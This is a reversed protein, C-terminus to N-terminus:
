NKNDYIGVYNFENMWEFLLTKSLLKKSLRKSIKYYNKKPIDSIKLSVLLSPLNNFIKFKNIKYNTRFHTLSLPLLNFSLENYNCEFIKLSIPLNNITKIKTNSINLIELNSFMFNLKNFQGNCSIDLNKLTDTLYNIHSINRNSHINLIRLNKLERLDLIHTKEVNYGTYCNPEPKEQDSLDLEELSPPLNKINMSIINNHSLCLKKLNKFKRLDPVDILCKQSLDLNTITENSNKIINRVRGTHNM